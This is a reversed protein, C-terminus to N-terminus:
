PSPRTKGEPFNPWGLRDHLFPPAARFAACTAPKHRFPEELDIGFACGAVIGRPCKSAQAQV